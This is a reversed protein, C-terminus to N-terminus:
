FRALVENLHTLGLDTCALRNSDPDLLGEERLENLPARLTEVRIGTHAELLSEPVGDVLRLANLVFELPREDRALERRGRTRSGVARLYHEPQRTKGYRLIRDEAPFTIKGHAGAGLALYDGFRWYNRNHRCQRGDRAFASIEYRGYGAGALRALGTEEIDALRDEDPREPPASYFATNPEITLEYWSIHAPELEIAADLDARAQEPTQGPLGHMLDLNFDDFGAHRAAAVAQRAEDPGHIRGLAQLHEPHFSQVGISLRNIGAERFEAFRGQELTGPNAELTIECDPAFDLRARLETLLRRYFDGSMLSPTGGGFFLTEVRRGQAAQVEADLDELLAALYAQEPPDGNEHSNFDCYPCKRVCWPLHVYLSLPPTELPM